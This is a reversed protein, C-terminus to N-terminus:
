RAAPVSYLVTLSSPLSATMVVTTVEVSPSSTAMWYLSCLTSPRQHIQSVVMPEVYLYRLVVDAGRLVVARREVADNAIFAHLPDQLPQAVLILVAAFESVRVVEALYVAPAESSAGATKM